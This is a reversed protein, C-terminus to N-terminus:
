GRVLFNDWFQNVTYTNAIGCLTSTNGQSASNYSVQGAAGLIGTITDGSTVVTLPYTTGNALPVTIFARRTLTGGTRQRIAFEGTFTDIDVVWLNNADTVRVCAGLSSTGATQTTLDVTLTYAAQGCDSYYYSALSVATARNGNITLAGEGATWGPGVDMTHATLNTGNAGTFLDKLLVTGGGAGGRRQAPFLTGLPVGGFLSGRVNVLGPVPLVAM